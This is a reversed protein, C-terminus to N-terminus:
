EQDIEQSKLNATAMYFTLLHFYSHAQSATALRSYSTAVSPFASLHLLFYSIKM